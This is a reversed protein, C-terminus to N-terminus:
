PERVRHPRYGKGFQNPINQNEDKLNEKHKQLEIRKMLYENVDKADPAPSDIVCYKDKLGGM